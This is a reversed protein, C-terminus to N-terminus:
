LRKRVIYQVREPRKTVVQIGGPGAIAPDISGTTDALIGAYDVTVRFDAATLNALQRIGGRTVIDLKPPIFIVERHQPVGRGEVPIGSMVKEAFPEVNLSVHTSPASFTLLLLTSQALAVDAEVPTRLDKFERHVTSWSTVTRVISAAGGITVSEPVLTVAGVQGYGERFSTAIDLQLPVKRQEFRDLGLLISDPTIDTLEVGARAPARESIDLRTIIRNLPALVRATAAASDARGPGEAAPRLAAFSMRLDADAGLQLLALRWGDGRYRLQVTRPVPTRIAYGQPLDEVTLPATLTIQYREGMSVSLWTLAGFLCAAFLILPQRKNM